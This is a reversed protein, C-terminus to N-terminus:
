AHSQGIWASFSHRRSDLPVLKADQHTLSRFEMLLRFEPAQHESHPIILGHINRAKVVFYTATENSFGEYLAGRDTRTRAFPLKWRPETIQPVLTPPSVGVGELTVFDYIM